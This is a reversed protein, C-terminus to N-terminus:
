DFRRWKIENQQSYFYSFVGQEVLTAPSILLPTFNSSDAADVFKGSPKLAPGCSVEDSM